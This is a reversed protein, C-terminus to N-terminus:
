RRTNAQAKAAKQGENSWKKSIIKGLWGAMVSNVPDFSQLYLTNLWNM